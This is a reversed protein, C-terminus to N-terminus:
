VRRNWADAAEEATDYEFIAAHCGNCEVGYTAVYGNDDFAYDYEALFAESGCFPCHKLEIM